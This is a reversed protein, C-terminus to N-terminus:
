LMKRYAGLTQAATKAWNFQQNRELGSRILRQRLVNDNCIDVIAEAISQEDYPNVLIAADGAVEPMSTCNSTIVPVGSAFAELIPIGFGEYLSAYVLADSCGLWDYLNDIRNIM